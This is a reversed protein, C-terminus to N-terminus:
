EDTKVPVSGIELMVQLPEANRILDVEVRDGLNASAVARVLERMDAIAKGGLGNIIDGSRIGASDAPGDKTVQAVYVGSEMTTGALAGIEKTVSQIKIGIWAPGETSSKADESSPEGTQKTGSVCCEVSSPDPVSDKLLCLGFDATGQDPNDPRVYTWSQCRHENVCLEACRDPGAIVPEEGLPITEFTSGVRATDTEWAFCPGAVALATFIFTGALHFLFRGRVLM